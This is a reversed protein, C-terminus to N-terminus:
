EFEAFLEDTDAHFPDLGPLKFETGVWLRYEERDAGGEDGSGKSRNVSSELLQFGGRKGQTAAIRENWDSDYGKANWHKALSKIHDVDYRGRDYYDGAMAADMDFKEGPKALGKSLM